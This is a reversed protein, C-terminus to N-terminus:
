IALDGLSFLALVDRLGLGRAGELSAQQSEWGLGREMSM